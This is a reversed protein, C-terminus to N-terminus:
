EDEDGEPNPYEEETFLGCHVECTTDQYIPRNCGEVYCITEPM